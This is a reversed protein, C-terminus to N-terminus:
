GQTLLIESEQLRAANIDQFDKRMLSLHGTDLLANFFSKGEIV